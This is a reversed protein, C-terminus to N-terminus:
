WCCSQVVSLFRPLIYKQAERVDRSMQELATTREEESLLGAAELEKMADATWDRACWEETDRTPTSAVASTIADWNAGTVGQCVPVCLGRGSMDPDQQVEIVPGDESDVPHFFSGTFDGDDLEIALGMHASGDQM